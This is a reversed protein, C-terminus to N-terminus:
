PTVRVSLSEQRAQRPLKAYKNEKMGATDTPRDGKRNSHSFRLLVLMKGNQSGLVQPEIQSPLVNLCILMTVTKM